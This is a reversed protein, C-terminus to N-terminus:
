IEERLVLKTTFTDLGRSITLKIKKGPKSNLQEILNDLTM